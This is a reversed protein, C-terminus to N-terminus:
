IKLNINNCANIANSVTKLTIFENQEKHAKAM